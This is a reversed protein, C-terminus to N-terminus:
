KGVAKKTASGGTVKGADGAGQAAAKESAKKTTSARSARALKRELRELDDKTAIGLTEFQGRVEARVAEVLAETRKRSRELLEDVYSQTKEQALQGNKVLDRVIKQAQSRRLQTFEVGADLYQKLDPGEPM